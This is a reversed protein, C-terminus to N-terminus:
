EDGKPNCFMEYVGMMQETLKKEKNFKLLSEKIIDEAKEGITFQKKKDATNNWSIVGGHNQLEYEKIEDETAGLDNKLDRIIKLTLFDNEKPLANLIILREPMNLQREM